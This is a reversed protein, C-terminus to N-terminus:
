KEAKAEALQRRLENEQRASRQCDYCAGADREADTLGGAGCGPCKEKNPM